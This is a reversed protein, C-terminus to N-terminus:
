PAGRSLSPPRLRVPFPPRRSSTRSADAPRRAVLLRQPPFTGPARRHSVTVLGAAELTRALQSTGALDSVAVQGGPRLVRAIERAAATRGDDDPLNHLCLASVVVDVSGDVLELARADGTRVDVRGAVGELVTNRRLRQPGNGWLDTGVWLDVAVVRGRPARRAAGVALLGAGAGVDLVVEDGRWAVADLLRDRHRLKGITVYRTGLASPVAAAAAVTGLAMALARRGRAAAVLALPATSAVVGTLGVLYPWGDVGYRPRDPIPLSRRM